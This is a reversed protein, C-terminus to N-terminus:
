HSNGPPSPRSRRLVAGWIHQGIWGGSAAASLVLVGGALILPLFIRTPVASVGAAVIIGLFAAVALVAWTEARRQAVAGVLLGAVFGGAALWLVLALLDYIQAGLMVQAASVSPAPALEPAFPGQPVPRSPECMGPAAAALAAAWALAIGATVAPASRKAQKQNM